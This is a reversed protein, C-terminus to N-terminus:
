KALGEVTLNRVRQGGLTGRNRDASFAVGATGMGAQTAQIAVADVVRGDQEFRVQRGDLWVQLGGGKAAVELRHSREAVFEAPVASAAIAHFPRLQWVRIQGDAGLKV